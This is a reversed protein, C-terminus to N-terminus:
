QELGSVDAQQSPLTILYRAVVQQISVSLVDAQLTTSVCRVQKLSITSINAISMSPISLCDCVSQSM